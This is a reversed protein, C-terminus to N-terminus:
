NPKPNGGGGKKAEAKKKAKAKKAKAKKKAKEPAPPQSTQAAFRLILSAVEDPKEVNPSHGAGRILATQAGPVKRFADIASEADYIQDEAGFIVLVPIGLETLRETLAKDSSYGDEADASKVFSTYTMARLDDVVQDPNEFGSAINFGPAFHDKYQDRVASSPGIQVLRNLAQGIVPVFGLRASFGLEGYSNDPAQDIDVLGDVLEPSQAALAVAITGGLSHGVVTAHEVNLEALAEAVGRAQEEMGYGGKPKESGGHGLLDVRVVRHNEALLPALEDWWRMSCTFCHILVIPTGEPDGEDLVQLGGISTEVIRGGDVNVEADKTEHSLALANLVLLVVFGALIALTIKLARRM